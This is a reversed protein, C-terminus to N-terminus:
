PISIGRQGRGIPPTPRILPTAPTPAAPTLRSRNYELYLARDITDGTQLRGARVTSSHTTQGEDQERSFSTGLSWRWYDASPLSLADASFHKERLDLNGKLHSRWGFFPSINHVHEASLRGGNNSSAGVGLVLKQLKAESLQVQVPTASPDDKPDMYLFVSDFFGTDVLRQQAQLL